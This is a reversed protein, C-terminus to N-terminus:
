PLPQYSLTLFFNRNASNYGRVLEYQKDLANNLRAGLRWHKDVEYDAALEVLGYGALRVTNAADDYRHSVGRVLARVEWPGLRRALEVSGHRQARRALLHDTTADKPDQFTLNAKLRWEGLHTSAQLALGRIRARNVNVMTPTDPPPLYIYAILDKIRNDFVTALLQSDGHRWRIGLERGVSREPKLDPNGVFFASAPWYLDNFTPAKFATGAGATLRWGPTLRYGYSAFGSGQGGFQEDDDHRLNLQLSHRDLDLLYGALFSQTDRRSRSYATSSSVHQEIRSTGVSLSGLPLRVENQWDLQLQRTRFRTANSLDRLEDESGGIRLTSHWADSFQNLSTLALSSLGQELIADGTPNSDFHSRGDATFFNVGLSHGSALDHEFQLSGSLNRYGDDDANYNWAAPTTANFGDTRSYGLHIGGRTTGSDLRYGASALHSGYSGLGVEGHPGAKGRGARTFIQMVGGLADAGYLSSAPARLIEIREIQSLPIHELATSGVTASNLRMGDVLILTHNANAGRLFVSSQSGPGGSATIEVGPQYQLLQTLTAAASNRIDSSRLVTVDTTLDLLPVPTRTATVVIEDLYVPNADAAHLPAAFYLGCVVAPLTLRM